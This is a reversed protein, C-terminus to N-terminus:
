RQYMELHVLLLVLTQTVAELDGELFTTGLIEEQTPSWGSDTVRGLTDAFESEIFNELVDVRSEQSLLVAVEVSCGEIQYPLHKM